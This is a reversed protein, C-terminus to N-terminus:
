EGRVIERWVAVQADHRILVIEADRLAVKARDYLAQAEKLAQEAQAVRAPIDM